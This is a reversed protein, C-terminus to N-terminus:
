RTMASRHVRRGEGGVCVDQLNMGTWVGLLVLQLWLAQTGLVRVDEAGGWVKEHLNMGQGCGLFFLSSSLVQTHVACGGGGGWGM